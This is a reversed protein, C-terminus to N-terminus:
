KKEVLYTVATGNKLAVEGREKVAFSGGYILEYVARSVQVKMAVGSHEMQQAM